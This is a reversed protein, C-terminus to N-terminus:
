YTAFSIFQFKQTSVFFIAISHIWHFSGEEETKFTSVTVVPGFIEEQACRSTQKIGTIVTPELWYGGEWEGGMKLKSGGTVITASCNLFM